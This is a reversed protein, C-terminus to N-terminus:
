VRNQLRTSRRLVPPSAAVPLFTHTSQTAPVPIACATYKSIATTNGPRLLIRGRICQKGNDLLLIYSEGNNRIAKVTAQQKTIANQIHVRSSLPLRNYSFARTNIAATQQKIHHARSALASTTNISPIPWPPLLIGATIHLLLWERNTYAFKRAFPAPCIHSTLCELLQNSQPHEETLVAFTKEVTLEESHTSFHPAQSLADAILHLKGPVWKVEFNYAQM